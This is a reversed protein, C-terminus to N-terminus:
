TLTLVVRSPLNLSSAMSDKSMESEQASRMSVPSPSTAPINPTLSSMSTQNHLMGSSQIPRHQEELQGRRERKEREIRERERVPLMKKYEVRLKRGSIEMHNMVKIVERTEEASSFNAFALGRFVGADFHYNFAYPLPLNKQSMIDTLQEKKVAFPINKIVIATPILDEMGDGDADTETQSNGNYSQASSGAYAQSPGNRDFTLAQQQQQQDM